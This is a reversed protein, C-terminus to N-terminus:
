LRMEGRIAGAVTQLLQSSSFPKKLFAQVKMKAVEELVAKTGYASSIIIPVSPNNERMASVVAAGNMEPMLLDTIVLKIEASHKAHCAVADIGRNATLVTYGHRELIIRALELISPEDDVLLIMEGSGSQLSSEEPHEPAPAAQDSAPIFLEFTAGKGVEPTVSFFGGHIRAITDVISLGPGMGMGPGKVPLNKRTGLSRIVRSDVLKFKVFRGEKGEPWNSASRADLEVNEASLELNGGDAMAARANLCLNLLAQNLQNPDGLASRLGDPLSANFRISEPFTNRIIGKIEEVLFEPRVATDGGKLGQSFALVLNIIDGARKAESEISSVIEDRKKAPLEERLISASMMIPALLNNLDHAAWPIVTEVGEVRQSPSAGGEAGQKQGTFEIFIQLLKERGAIRIRRSSEMVPVRGGNAQLLILPKKELDAGAENNEAHGLFRSCASGEIQDITAGIFQAGTQNIREIIQKEADILVVGAALNDLLFRDVIDRKSKEKQRRRAGFAIGAALAGWLLTLLILWGVQVPHQKAFGLDKLILSTGLAAAIMISFFFLLGRFPETRHLGSSHNESM